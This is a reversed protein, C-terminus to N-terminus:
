CPHAHVSGRASILGWTCPCIWRYPHIWMHLLLHMQLCTCPCIDAHMHMISLFMSLDRHMSECSCLCIQTCSHTWMHRSLDMNAHVYGHACPQIWTHMSPDVHAHISGCTGLCIWKCLHASPIQSHMSLDVCLSRHPAPDLALLAMCCAENGAKPNEEESGTQKGPSQFQNTAVLHDVATGLVQCESPFCFAFQEVFVTPRPQLLPHHCRAWMHTVGVVDSSPLVLLIKEGPGSISSPNCFTSLPKRPASLQDWYPSSPDTVQCLLQPLAPFWSFNPVATVARLYM